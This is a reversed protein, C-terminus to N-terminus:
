LNLSAMMAEPYRTGAVDKMISRLQEDEEKTLKINVSADNESLFKIRKTGPIPVIDNGQHLVWALALQSPTCGKTAAMKGVQDVLELNKKFNEGTFRPHNKRWDDNDIDDPSKIAGTLLGRGVPSYAVIGVGLERITPFLTQELDPSWLSYEIQVASIPHVAHARRLTEASCESLGLYKVKGEKVLQAMAGVTDEIPTNKDVRHQYYLDIYDIELRQLSEECCKRVYDPKGNITIKGDEIGIAFKTCIVFKDRGFRKIAKALLIENTGFGYANATDFFNVGEKIAQGIVNLSEEEDVARSTYAASMGMCGLGIRSAKLGQKGLAVIEM